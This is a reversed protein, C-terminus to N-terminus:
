FINDSLVRLNCTWRNGTCFRLSIRTQAGPHIFKAQYLSIFTAIFHWSKYINEDYPWFICWRSLIQSFYYFLPSEIILSVGLSKRVCLPFRIDDDFLAPPAIIILFSLNLFDRFFIKSGFVQSKPGAQLALIQGLCIENLKQSLFHISSQHM